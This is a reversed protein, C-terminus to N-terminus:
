GNKLFVELYVRPVTLWYTKIQKIAGFSDWVFIYQCLEINFGGIDVYHQSTYITEM